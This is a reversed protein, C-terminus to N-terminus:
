RDAYNNRRTAVSVTFFIVGEKTQREPTVSAGEREPVGRSFKSAKRALKETNSYIFGAVSAALWLRALGHVVSNGQSVDGM